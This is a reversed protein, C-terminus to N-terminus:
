KRILQVQSHIEAQLLYLLSHQDVQSFSKCSNLKKRLSLTDLKVSSQLCLAKTKSINIVKQIKMIRFSRSELGGITRLSHRHKLPLNYPSRTQKLPSTATIAMFVIPPSIKCHSTKIRQTNDLDPRLPSRSYSQTRPLRNHISFSPWMIWSTLSRLDWGRRWTKLTRGLGKM